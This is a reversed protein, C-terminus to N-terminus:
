LLCAEVVVMARDWGPLVLHDLSKRRKRPGDFVVPMAFRRQDLQDKEGNLPTSRVKLLMNSKEDFYFSIGFSVVILVSM